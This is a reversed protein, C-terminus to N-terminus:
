RWWAAYRPQVRAYRERAPHVRARAAARNLDDAIDGYDAVLRIPDHASWRRTTSWRDRAAGIEGRSVGAQVADAYATRLRQDAAQVQAYSCCGRVAKPKRVARARIPRAAKVQAPPTAAALATAAAQPAQLPPVMEVPLSAPAPGIAPLPPASAAVATATRPPHPARVLLSGAAIGVLAAAAVGGVGALTLRPRAAEPGGGRRAVGIRRARPAATEAPATHGFIAELDSSVAGARSSREAAPEDPGRLAGDLDADSAM